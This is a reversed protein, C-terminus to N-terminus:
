DMNMRIKYKYNNWDIKQTNTSIQNRTNIM